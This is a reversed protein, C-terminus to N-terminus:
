SYVRDDLEEDSLARNLYFSRMKDHHHILLSPDKITEEQSINLVDSYSTLLNERLERKSPKAEKGRNDYTTQEAQMKELIIRSFYQETNYYFNHHVIEKPVLLVPKGDILLGKGKYIRWKHLAIDWYYYKAPIDQIDMSHKECQSITFENLNLFLINTLMDSLCDEAFDRIFIPLDIAKSLPINSDILTQVSKFTEIMGEPTKAKGNNGTGYGLKTANIEHSHKFFNLKEGLSSHNRYLNYFNDFFDCMTDAASQCFQTHGTEILCPDIFLETDSSLNVDIFDFNRHGKSLKFYESIYM